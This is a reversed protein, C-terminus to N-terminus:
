RLLRTMVMQTHESDLGYCNKHTEKNQNLIVVSKLLFQLNGYLSIFEITKQQFKNEKILINILENKKKM